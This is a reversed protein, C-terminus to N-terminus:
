RRASDVEQGMSVTLETADYDCRATARNGDLRLFQEPVWGRRGQPDTCWLWGPWESEPADAPGAVLLEDGARLRVPEPYDSRHAAVVRATAVPEARGNVDRQM